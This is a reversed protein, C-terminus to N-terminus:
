PNTVNWFSDSCYYSQHVSRVRLEQYHKTFGTGSTAKAARPLLSTLAVRSWTKPRLPRWGSPLNVRTYWLFDNNATLASYFLLPTQSLRAKGPFGPDEMDRSYKNVMNPVCHKNGYFQTSMPRISPSTVSIGRISCNLWNLRPIGEVNYRQWIRRMQFRVYIDRLKQSYQERTACKISLIGTKGRYNNVFRSAM